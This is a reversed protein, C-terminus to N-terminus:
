TTKEELLAKLRPHNAYVGRNEEPLLIAIRCMIEDTSSILWQKHHEKDLPPLNFPEGFRVTVDMKKFHSWKQMMDASGTVAAPVIPVRAKEALLAAGGKGQQLTKTRSRTGEPAIGVIWGQKLYNVADRFAKFDSEDRSMWIVGISGLFWRFFTKEQYERALIAIVDDRPTSIMLFPTDLRSIHSTTLIFAGKQPVRDYNEVRLDVLRKVLFKVIGLLQKRNM